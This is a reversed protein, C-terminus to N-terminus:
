AKSIIHIKLYMPGPLFVAPDSYSGSSLAFPLLHEPFDIAYSKPVDKEKSNWRSPIILWLWQVPLLLNCQLIVNRIVELSIAHGGVDYATKLLSVARKLKSKPNRHVLIAHMTLSNYVNIWFALKEEHKLKSPNVQRLQQVLSRYKRLMYEINKLRERSCSISKVEVLYACAGLERSHNISFPNCFNSNFTSFCYVNNPGWTENQGSLSLPSSCPFYHTAMLPPKALECYIRSISKIMEESIRNPTEWEPDFASVQLYEGLSTMSSTSPEAQELMSLPLSHYTSDSGSPSKVPPFIRNSCSLSRCSLSSLSTHNESGSQRLTINEGNEIVPASDKDESVQHAFRRRCLFLVYKELVAVEEILKEAEKSPHNTSQAADCAYQNQSMAKELMQRVMIQDKLQLQLNQVDKKLTTARTVHDASLM